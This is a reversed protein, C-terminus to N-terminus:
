LAAQEDLGIKELIEAIETEDIRNKKNKSYLSIVSMLKSGALQLYVMRYGGRTGKQKGKIRAKWANKTGPIPDNNNRQKPDIRLERMRKRTSDLAAKLESPDKVAGLLEEMAFDFICFLNKRPDFVAM